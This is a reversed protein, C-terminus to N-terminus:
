KEKVAIYYRPKPTNIIKVLYPNVLWAIEGIALTTGSTKTLYVDFSLPPRKIDSSKYTVIEPQLLDDLNLTWITRLYNIIKKQEIPLSTNSTTKIFAIDSVGTSNKIIGKTKILDKTPSSSVLNDWKNKFAKVM